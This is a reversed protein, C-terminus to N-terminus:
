KKTAKKVLHILIFLGLTIGLLIYISKSQLALTSNFLTIKRILSESIVFPNYIGLKVMFSPLYELPLITNSLFLLLSGLSISALAGTEESRFIYGILMGLLVFMAIVIALVLILNPAVKLLSEKFFYFSVALITLMQLSIILFNTLFHGIIFLTDSTPTLFNRFYASARRERIVVTSSLLLGIFMILLVLLTPFLFNLNTSASVVPEIKIEIPDVIREPNTVDIEKVNKGILDLSVGLSDVLISSESTISRLSNLSRISTDRAIRAAELTAGFDRVKAKLEGYYLDFISSRNQPFQGEFESWGLGEFNKNMDVSNFANLAVVTDKEAGRLSSSVSTALLRKDTIERNTEDLKALINKTLKLSIEEAKVEVQASIKDMLIYVLNIRSPDVYFTIQNKSRIDLNQPFALCVHNEGERVSDSCETKDDYKIINFKTEQVKSILENTLQNYTPSYVAVKIGYVTATNFAVGVLLVLLLPGLIVILSSSKSRLLLRINKLIIGYLKQIFHM